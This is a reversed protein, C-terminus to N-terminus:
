AKGAAAYNTIRGNLKPPLSEDTEAVAEDSEGAKAKKSKSPEAAEPAANEGQLITGIDKPPEIAAASAHGNAGLLTLEDILSTLSRLTRYDPNQQLRNLAGDRLKKLEQVHDM